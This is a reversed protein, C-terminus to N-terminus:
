YSGDEDERIVGSGDAELHWDPGQRDMASFFTREAEGGEVMETVFNQWFPRAPVKDQGWTYPPSLKEIRAILRDGDARGWRGEVGGWKKVAHEGTPQYDIGARMHDVLPKANVSVNNLPTGLSFNESRRKYVKPYYVSEDYVDKEIHRALTNLMASNLEDLTRNAACQFQALIVALDKDLSELGTVTCALEM